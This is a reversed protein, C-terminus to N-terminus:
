IADFVANNGVWPLARKIGIGQNALGDVACAGATGDNDCLLNSLKGVADPLARGINIPVKLPLLCSGIAGQDGEKCTM